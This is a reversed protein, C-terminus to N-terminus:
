PGYGREYLDFQLHLDLSDYKAGDGEFPRFGLEVRDSLNSSDVRQRETMGTTNFLGNRNTNEIINLFQDFEFPKQLVEISRTKENEALRAISVDHAYATALLIRQSPVASLIENAVEVGDKKPMRYDLIILDFPSRGINNSDTTRQFHEAFVTSCQAGDGTITVQHGAYELILKYSEAIAPEDEAVLIKM